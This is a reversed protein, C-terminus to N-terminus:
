SLTGGKDSWPEEGVTLDVKDDYFCLLGAIEQSEPIPTRYCWVYDEYRRGDLEISWYTATGKYPCFTETTSPRLLDLRVDSMPLYYRPALGTEFLIRPSTSEALLTGDLEVRVRRSSTVIAIRARRDRPHTSVPEGEEIWEDMSAWEFRVLDRLEEIPSTSFRRAAGPATTGETAVDYIEADGLSPRHETRGTPTLRARVDAVPVYYTPFNPVEWVVSPEVTDFVLSGGLSARMRKKQRELRPHGRPATEDM